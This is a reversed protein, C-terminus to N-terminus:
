DEYPKSKILKFGSMCITGMPVLLQQLNFETFLIFYFLDFDHAAVPLPRIGLTICTLQRFQFHCGSAVPSLNKIYFSCVALM